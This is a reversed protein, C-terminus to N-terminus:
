WFEFLSEASKDNQTKKTKTKKPTRKWNPPTLGLKVIAERVEEVTKSGFNKLTILSDYTQRMLHEALIVNHKELANVIRVSLAM